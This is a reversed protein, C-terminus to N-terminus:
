YVLNQEDCADLDITRTPLIANRIICGGEGCTSTDLLAYIIIQGALQDASASEGPMINLDGSVNGSRPEQNFFIKLRGNPRSNQFILTGTNNDLCSDGEKSCSLTSFSLVLAFIYLTIQKVTFLTKM